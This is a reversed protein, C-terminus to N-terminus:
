LTFDFTYSFMKNSTVRVSKNGKWLIKLIKLHVIVVFRIWEELHSKSNKEKNWHMITKIELCVVTWQCSIFNYNHTTHSTLTPSRQNVSSTPIQFTVETSSSPWCIISMHPHTNVESRWHCLLLPIQQTKLAPWTPISCFCSSPIGCLSETIHSHLAPWPQCGSYPWKRSSFMQLLSVAEALSQTDGLEVTYWKCVAKLKM